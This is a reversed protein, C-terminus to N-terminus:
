IVYAQLDLELFMWAAESASVYKANLFNRIQDVDKRDNLPKRTIRDQADFVYKFIYKTSGVSSICLEM